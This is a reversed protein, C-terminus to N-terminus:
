FDTNQLTERLSLSEMDRTKNINTDYQAEWLNYAKKIRQKENSM